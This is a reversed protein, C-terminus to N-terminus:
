VGKSTLIYDLYSGNPYNYYPAQLKFQNHSDFNTRIRKEVTAGVTKTTCKYCNGLPDVYGAGIFLDYPGNSPRTYKSSNLDGVIFVPLNDPNKQKLLAVVEQTQKVRLNHKETNGTTYTELHVDAFLFRKGTERERMVAWAVYRDLDSTSSTSLLLSGESVLELKDSNYVIKTGLSAGQYKYKCSSSKTADVCNSRNENTLKYPPGLRDVLDNFQAKNITKTGADNKIWAQSAEQFGIIDPKQKLVTAAVADRREYWTGENAGGKYCNFCRVNYSAIKLSIQEKLTRAEAPTGNSWQSLLSGSKNVPAVQFYYKTVQKLDNVTASLTTVKGTESPFYEADTMASAESYRIRYGATGSISSKAWSVKINSSDIAALKPKIGLYTTTASPAASGSSWGSLQKGGKNFVATQFYYKTGAKLGNATATLATTTKSSSPFYKPSSLSSSTSYRVRYAYAGSITSKGWSVSISELGVKEVRTKAGPRKTVANAPTSGKAWGTLMKKKSNFVGVQFFYKVGPKLGSITVSHASTIKSASPYYSANKMNKSTSYKVRFGKAGKIGSKGWSLNISTTDTSKISVKMGARAAAAEPVNWSLAGLVFGLTLAFGVLARSFFVVRHM